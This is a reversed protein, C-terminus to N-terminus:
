FQEVVVTGDPAVRGSVTVRSATNMVRIMDGAGGESLARGETEIRLSGREYTLQVIQNRDVLQPARLVSATVPRGEYITFRTQQGIAM